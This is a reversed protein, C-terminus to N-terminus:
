VNGAASIWHDAANLRYPHPEIQDPKTAEGTLGGVRTLTLSIYGNLNQVWPMKRRGRDFKGKQIDAHRTMVVKLLRDAKSCASAASELFAEVDKLREWDAKLNATNVKQAHKTWRDFAGPLNQCVFSLVEDHALGALALSGSPSTRCRHLLREFALQALRYCAEYRLIAECSEWLHLFAEKDKITNAIRQLRKLEPEDKQGPVHVLVDSFQSRIGNSHLADRLYRGEDRGTTGWLYSRQGWTALERAGIEVKEDSAAKRVSSPMDTEKRFASALPEGTSPVLELTKRYVLKAQEAVNGYIGLVGYPIQRSLLKFSATTRSKSNESIWDAQRQAYTVGRLGSLSKGDSGHALVNALAWLRELRLIFQQRQARQKAESLSESNGVLSAGTCLLSLYRPCSAVNTMGPLIKDALFLYGREFGLPDISGGPLDSPDYATLFPQLGIVM